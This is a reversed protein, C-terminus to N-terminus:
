WQLQQSTELGASTAVGSNVELVYRAPYESCFRDPFTDPTVDEEIHVVTKQDNLWIMDLAFNMDKMWMCRFGEVGFDFLMGEKQPLFSRGSLGLQLAEASSVVELEVCYDPNNTDASLQLCDPQVTNQRYSNLGIVILLVASLIGFWILLKFASTNASQKTNPESKIKKRNAKQM